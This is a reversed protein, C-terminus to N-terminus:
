DRKFFSHFDEFENKKRFGEPDWDSFTRKKTLKKRTSFEEGQAMNTYQTILHNIEEAYETDFLHLSKDDTNILLINSGIIGWRLIHNFELKLFTKKMEPEALIVNLPKIGLIVIKRFLERPTQVMYENAEVKRYLGRFKKASFLDYKELIALYEFKLEHPSLGKSSLSEYCCSIPDTWM